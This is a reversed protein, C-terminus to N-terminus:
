PRYRDGGATRGELLRIADKLPMNADVTLAPKSMIEDVNARRPARSM